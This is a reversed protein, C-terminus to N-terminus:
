FVACWDDQFMGIKGSKWKNGRDQAKQSSWDPDLVGEQKMRNIFQLADRREPSTPVYVLQNNDIRWDGIAGFAGLIPDFYQFNGAPDVTSSWGLTDAQDNGDPDKETSAKM